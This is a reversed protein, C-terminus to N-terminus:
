GERSLIVRYSFEELPVGTSGYLGEFSEKFHNFSFTADTYRSGVDNLFQDLGKTSIRRFCETFVPVYADKHVAEFWPCSIRGLSVKKLYERGIACDAYRFSELFNELSRRTYWVWDNGRDLALGNYRQEETLKHYLDYDFFMPFKVINTLTTMKIPM